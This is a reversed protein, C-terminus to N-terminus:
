CLATWFAFTLFISSKGVKQGFSHICWICQNQAKVFKLDFFYQTGFDSLIIYNQRKRPRNQLIFFNKPNKGSLDTLIEFIESRFFLINHAGFVRLFTYKHRKRPWIQFILFYKPNKRILGHSFIFFKRDSFQYQIKDNELKKQFNHIM